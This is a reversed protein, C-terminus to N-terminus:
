GILLHGTDSGQEQESQDIFIELRSATFSQPCSFFPAVSASITPHCWQSLPCSNSRVWPSLSPCPLRAYQLGHPWLSESMVSCSFFWRRCNKLAGTQRSTWISGLEHITSYFGVLDTIVPAEPPESPLSDAWLTLSRPECGPNPLHGPPLFLLGSWYEQRPFGMSLSAQSPVTWLIM